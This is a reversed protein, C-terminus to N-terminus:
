NLQKEYIRYTKYHRGGMAQIGANIAENDELTWSLESNIWGLKQSTERADHYLLAEIGKNRYEPKVGLALLRLQNIRRFYYLFKITGLIGLNGDLHKLTQNVDPLMLTFGVPKGNIEAFRIAQPVLIPKLKTAMYQIENQTMPIHGWNKEWADNYIDQVIQLDKKFRRMNLPRISIEKNKQLRAVLRSIREPLPDHCPLTHAYLDKAKKLGYGELLSAYTPPNYTMLIYPSSDFGEVLLGCEDNISPNLPGRMLKKGKRQLWDQAQSLLGEASEPDNECEFFGFFGCAEQHINEHLRNTIAAIRGTLRGNRFSLFLAKEAHEWFPNKSSLIEKAEARLPPVWFPDNRYLRFPLEIFESFDQPSSVPRIQVSKKEALLPM